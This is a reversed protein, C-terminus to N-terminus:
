LARLEELSGVLPKECLVHRGRKLAARTLAAHSSPPTCIDVFDVEVDALLAEASDYWRANPSRAAWAARRAPSIDAVAVIEVDDRSLWSPLHGHMAANGLGVIAGKLM